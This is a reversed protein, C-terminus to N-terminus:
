ARCATAAVEPVQPLLFLRSLGASQVSRDLLRDALAVGFELGQFCLHLLQLTKLRGNILKTGFVLLDLALNEAHGAVNLRELVGHFELLTFTLKELAFHLQQPFAM